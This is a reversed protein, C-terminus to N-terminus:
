YYGICGLCSDQSHRKSRSRISRRGNWKVVGLQFTQLCSMRGISTLWNKSFGLWLLRYLNAQWESLHERSVLIYTSTQRVKSKQSRGLHTRKRRDQDNPVISTVTWSESSSRRSKKKSLLRMRKWLYQDAARTPVFKAYSEEKKTSRGDLSWDDRRSARDHYTESM